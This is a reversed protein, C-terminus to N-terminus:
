EIVIIPPNNSISPNNWLSPHTIQEALLPKPLPKPRNLRIVEIAMIVRIDWIIRIVRTDRTVRTIRMVRIARREEATNTYMGGSHRSGVRVKLYQYARVCAGM